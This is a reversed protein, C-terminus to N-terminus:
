WIPGLGHWEGGDQGQPQKIFRCSLHAAGVHIGADRAGAAGVCIFLYHRLYLGFSIRGVYPHARCALIRVDAGVFGACALAVPTLVDALGATM